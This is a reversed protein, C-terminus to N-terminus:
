LIANMARIQTSGASNTIRNQVTWQKRNLAQVQAALNTVALELRATSAASAPPRLAGSVAAVRGAGRPADFAGEAKLQKTLVAPLVIGQSPATWLSNMPNRILSLDGAKSLFSEQGLSRGGPGDNIRYQQGAQVPGGTFRSPALGAASQLSRLLQDASAASDSMSGAFSRANGAADGVADSFRGSSFTKISNGAQIFGSAVNEVDKAAEGTSGALQDIAGPLKSSDQLIARWAKGQTEVQPTISRLEKEIGLSAGQALLQNRATEANAQAIQAELPAIQGLIAVKQQAYQLSVQELQLQNKADAIRQPDLSAEAALLNRQATTVVRKQELVALQAEIALQEQKLQLAAQELAQQRVTAEFRAILAEQQLQANAAERNAIQQQTLGLREANDIEFQNRARLVDFRSQELNALATSIGLVQQAVQQQGIIAELPGREQIKTLAERTAGIQRLINVQEQLSLTNEGEAAGAAKAGAIRQANWRQAQEILGEQVRGFNEGGARLNGFWDKAAGSNAVANSLLNKAEQATLNYREQVTRLTGALQLAEQTSFGFGEQLNTAEAVTQLDEISKAVFNLAPIAAPAFSQGIFAALNSIAGQVRKTAGEITQAIEDNAKAAVGAANRQNDLAKNYKELNETLSPQVAALAEVSGFLQLNLGTAGKTAGAVEALVGQLGKAKLASASFGIGLKSALATAEDTPKIIAAIAQRLGTVAAEPRVGAVTAVAIAANLEEISVGASAAIPALKGIQQAYEAVIIKGDNQTQIFGDVLRGAQDAALGYANLVSTTANAVTDIDSFGGVAGLNAAELIAAADAAQTFGASAVDYAARLLEGQSVASGTARSVALLRTELLASDAGLTRLAASASNVQTAQAAVFQLARGIALLVGLAGAAPLLADVLDSGLGQSAGTVRAIAQEAERAERQLTNFARSGVAVRQLQANLDQLRAQAAAISRPDANILLRQRNVADIREQVEQIQAETRAFASSDVRLRTQRQQLDQLQRNLADLSGAAVPVRGLRQIRDQLAEVQLQARRYDDTDVKLDLARAQIQQLRANLGNISAPDFQLSVRKRNVEEIQAEVQQIRRTVRDFATSDVSLRVQRQQLRQLEQQLGSISGAAVPIRSLDQIKRQLADVQLQARQYEETGVKLNLSQAQLQQLRSTLGNISASDFQLSLKKRNAQDILAQIEKIKEGTKTFATSDVNVRLQRSQLRSLEQQLSAVSRKGFRNLEDEFGAGVQRGAKTGEDVLRKFGELIGRDDFGGEIVFDAL